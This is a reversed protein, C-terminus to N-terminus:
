NSWMKIFDNYKISGRIDLGSEKLIYEIDEEKIQKSGLLINFYERCTIYGRNNCDFFKFAALVTEDDSANKEVNKVTAIPQSQQIEEKVKNSAYGMTKPIKRVGRIGASDM